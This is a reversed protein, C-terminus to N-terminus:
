SARRSPRQSQLKELTDREQVFGRWSDIVIGIMVAATIGFSPWVFAAYGGMHFFENISDM